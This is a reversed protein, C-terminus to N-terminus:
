SEEAPKEEEVEKEAPEPEEAKEEVVEAEKVMRPPIITAVASRSDTLIEGRELSLDEVHITDGVDLHSVDVEIPQPIETPLCQVEAERLIHQLIGGKSKVGVPTGTLVIPIEVTIKRAASVRQFDVHLLHGKIPDRQLEKIITKWSGGKEGGLKLDIIAAEGSLAHLLSHLEKADIQLSVTAQGDGYLIAPTKGERRLRKASSKGTQGRREAKLILEVM